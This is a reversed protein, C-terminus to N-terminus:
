CFAIGLFHQMNLAVCRPLSNPSCCIPIQWLIDSPILFETAPKDALAHKTSRGTIWEAWCICSLHNESSRELLGVYQSYSRVISRRIIGYMLPLRASAKTETPFGKM